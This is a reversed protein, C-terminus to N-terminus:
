NERKSNEPISEEAAKIYPNWNDHTLGYDKLVSFMEGFSERMSELTSSMLPLDTTNRIDCEKIQNELLIIEVFLRRLYDFVVENKESLPNDLIKQILYPARSFTSIFRKYEKSIKYRDRYIDFSCKLPIDLVFYTFPIILIILLPNNSKFLIITFIFLAIVMLIAFNYFIPNKYCNRNAGKIECFKDYLWKNMTGEVFAKEIDM